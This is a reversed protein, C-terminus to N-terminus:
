RSTPLERFICDLRSQVMLKGDLMITIGAFKSSPTRVTPLQFAEYEDPFLGLHSSAVGKVFYPGESIPEGTAPLTITLVEACHLEDLLKHAANSVAFQKQSAASPIAFVVRSWFSKVFEPDQTFAAVTQRLVSDSIALSECIILVAPVHLVKESAASSHSADGNGSNIRSASSLSLPSITRQLLVPLIPTEEILFSIGRDVLLRQLATRSSFAYLTKRLAEHPLLARGIARSFYSLM